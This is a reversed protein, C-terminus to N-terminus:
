MIYVILVIEIVNKITKNCLLLLYMNICAASVYSNSIFFEFINDYHVNTICVTFIIKQKKYAKTIKM